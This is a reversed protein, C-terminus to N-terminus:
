RKREDLSIHRQVGIAQLFEDDHSVVCLGGGWAQLAAQMAAVGVFDLHDTPEDLILLEVVPRRQFLCMLAARVREGPSLSALPREALAFPFRHALLLQAVEDTSTAESGFALHSFLSEDSIWNRAHQAIFGM